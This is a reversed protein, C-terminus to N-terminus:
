FARVEKVNTPTPYERVAKLKDPSASIGDKSIIYGLYQVEAKAFSCKAPQLLLNAKEFRELVHELRLAHQEINESYVLIDDLFVYAERGQLEKLVVDMLRQFTSPANALGFPLSRFCYSGSRTSFATKEQDAGAVKVQWYGSELDLSTFYRSGYLTSITEEFIPLEYIEM